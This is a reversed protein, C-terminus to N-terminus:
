ITAINDKIDKKKDRLLLIIFIVAIILTPIYRLIDTWLPLSIDESINGMYLLETLTFQSQNYMFHAIVAPFVSDTKKTLWILFTGFCTLMALRGFTSVLVESFTSNGDLYGSIDMPFHWLGWVIGGVLCTGVTGLLPEMKQNMYGRWGLEEGLLGISQVASFSILLFANSLVNGFTFGGLWDAHGSVIVPLLFMSSLCILPLGFSLLYYRINGTLHLHLKMDRFGEKTVARTILSAIAPSFSFIMYIIYYVTHSQHMLKACLIYFLMFAFVILLYIGLRKACEKKATM